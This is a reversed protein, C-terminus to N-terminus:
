APAGNEAIAGLTADASKFAGLARPVGVYIMAQLLVERIEEPTVGNSMAGRVHIAVEDERGLATLMGLVVLSRERRGLGPRAWIEGFCYGTMIEHFPRMFDSVSEMRRDAFEAGFMDRQVQLGADVM